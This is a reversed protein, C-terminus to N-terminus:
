KYYLATHKLIIYKSANRRQVHFSYKHLCGCTMRQRWTKAPFPPPRPPRCQKRRRRSELWPSKLEAEAVILGAQGDHCIAPSSGFWNQPQLYVSELTSNQINLIINTTFFIPIQIAFGVLVSSVPIATQEGDRLLLIIHLALGPSILFVICQKIFVSFSFCTDKKVTCSLFAAEASSSAPLQGSSWLRMKLLALCKCQTVEICDILQM